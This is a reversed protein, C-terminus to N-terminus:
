REDLRSRLEQGLFSVFKRIRANELSPPRYVLNVPISGDDFRELVPVLLRQQIATRAQYSLVRVVGVGEIAASVAADATNVNL